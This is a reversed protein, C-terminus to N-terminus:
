TGGGKEREAELEAMEVCRCDDEAQECKPCWEWGTLVVNWHKSETGDQNERAAGDGDLQTVLRLHLDQVDLICCGDGELPHKFTGKHICVPKRAHGDAILKTLLKHLKGVTM